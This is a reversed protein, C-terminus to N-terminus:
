RLEIVDRQRNVLQLFLQAGFSAFEGLDTVAENGLAAMKDNGDLL